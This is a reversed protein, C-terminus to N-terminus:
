LKMQKFNQNKKKFFLIYPMAYNLLQQQFNTVPFVLDDNFQYWQRDKPSKCTAIFHGASGSEGMHTVVGILEYIYGSNKDEIYNYLNLELNFNLKVKFQIGQGRNLVLILINPCNHLITQFTSPLQKNCIDCYMANEGFFNEIKQYYDFCDYIDVINNQLLNIKNAKNMMGQMANMNMHNIQNMLMNQNMNMINMQNMNNMGMMPNMMPNNMMQNMMPNMNMMNQNIFNNNNGSLEQIKYKRVEELPFILFFYAEYNHKYYPCISCKTITHNIGYFLDSIISENEGFFINKFNNLMFEWNTQNIKMNLNVPIQRKPKVNLEEHLTMIIFNVLDKADNAQVGEFLPNMKSIKEKFDTPAFYFNNSNKKHNSNIKSTWINDILFKFSETLCNERKQSYKKITNIISQNNKKILLVLYEIQALCQLTANMYCTAGVNKLGILPCNKFDFPIYPEPPKPPPNKLSYILGIPKSNIDVLQDINYEIFKYSSINKDFGGFINSDTFNKIFNEYSNYELLYIANFINNKDLSGYVFISSSSKSNIRSPMSVCIYGNVFFSERYIDINTKKFIQFYLEKDILEFNDYYCLDSNQVYKKIPEELINGTQIIHSYNDNFKQNLNNPLNKIILTLMKDDLHYDHNNYIDAARKQAFNNKSLYQELLPYNYFDKYKRFFDSNVLLLKKGSKEIISKSHFRLYHFYLITMTKYDKNIKYPYYNKINPVYKYAYGIEKNDLDFIPSAYDEKNDKNFMLHCETYKSYGKEILWNISDSIEKVGNFIYFIEPIFHNSNDLNYVEIFNNHTSKYVVFIKENGFYCYFKFALDYNPIFTKITEEKVLVFNNYYFFNDCDIKEPTYSLSSTFDITKNNKLYQNIINTFESSTKANMIIEKNSLGFSSNKITEEFLQNIKKDYFMNLIKYHNFYKKMWDRNLSYYIEFNSNKNLPENIKKRILNIEIIINLLNEVEKRILKDNKELKKNTDLAIKDNQKIENFNHNNQNYNKHAYKVNTNQNENNLFNGIHMLTYGLEGSGVNQSPKESLHYNGQNLEEKKDIKYKGNLILIKNIKNYTGINTFNNNLRQSNKLIINIGRNKLLNYINKLEDKNECYIIIEPYYIPIEKIINDNIGGYFINLNQNLILKNDSILYFMNEFINEKKQIKSLLYDALIKNVFCSNEFYYFKQEEQHKMIPRYLTESKIKSSFLSFDKKEIERIYNEPLNNLSENLFQEIKTEDIYNFKNRYKKHINSLEHNNSFFKKFEKANYFENYEKIIEYNIIFGFNDTSNNININNQNSNNIKYNLEDNFCLLRLLFKVDSKKTENFELKKQSSNYNNNYVGNTKQNSEYVKPQNLKTVKDEKINNEQLNVYAIEQTFRKESPTEKEQHNIKRNKNIQENINSLKLDYIVGLKENNRNTLENLNEKMREKKFQTYDIKSLDEFNNQMILNLEYKLLLDPTVLINSTDFNCILIEYKSISAPSLKVFIKENNIIYEKKIVDSLLKDRSLNIYNYTDQNILIFEFRYYKITENINGSEIFNSKKELSFIKNLNEYIQKEKEHIKNLFQNDFSEYIKEVNKEHENSKFINQVLQRIEDFAIFQTYEKFWNADILYGEYKKLKPSKLNQKLEESFLFYSILAKIINELFKNLKIKINNNSNNNSNNGNQNNKNLNIENTNDPTINIDLNENSIKNNELDSIKFLKGISADNKTHTENKYELNLNSLANTYGKTKFKTFCYDIYQSNYLYLLLVSEFYNNNYEGIIISPQSTIDIPIIIKNDGLLFIKKDNLEISFLEQIISAIEKNIIEFNVYYQVNNKVKLECQYNNINKIKEIEGNNISTDILEIYDVPFSNMIGSLSEKNNNNQKYKKIDDKVTGSNLYQFLKDDCHFIRNINDIWEKAIIYFKEEFTNILNRNVKSKLEDKFLHINIMLLIILNIEKENKNPISEHNKNISVKNNDNNLIILNDSTNVPTEENKVEISEDTKTNLKICNGITIQQKDKIDWFEKNKDLYINPFDNKLFMNLNELFIDNKEKIDLIYEPIFIGKNNIFGIEDYEKNSDIVDSWLLIKKKILLCLKFERFLDNLEYKMENLLEFVVSNIIYNNCLYNKGEKTQNYEYKFHKKSDFNKKENIKDIYDPPLSDLIKEIEKSSYNNDKICLEFVEKKNAFYNVLYNDLDQCYFYSKYDDMWSNHVLYITEIYDKNLISLSNNEKERLFKNYLYIRILIEIDKKFKINDNPQIKTESLKQDNKAQSKNSEKIERIFIREIIFGTSSSKLIDNESFLLIISEDDFKFSIEKTKINKQDTIKYLHETKILYFSKNNKLDKMFEESKIYKKPFIETIIETEKIKKRLNDYSGQDKLLPKLSAYNIKNKNGEIIDNDLLYGKYEFNKMHNDFFKENGYIGECFEYIKKQNPSFYNKNDM